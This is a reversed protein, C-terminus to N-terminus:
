FGLFFVKVSDFCILCISCKLFMDLLTWKKWGCIDIYPSLEFALLWNESICQWSILQQNIEMILLKHYTCIIVYYIFTELLSFFNWKIQIQMIISVWIKNSLNTWELEAAWIKFRLKKEAFIKNYDHLKFNKYPNLKKRYYLYTGTIPLIEWLLSSM